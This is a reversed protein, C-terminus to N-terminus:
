EDDDWKMDDLEAAILDNFDHQSSDQKYDVGKQIARHFVKVVNTGDAALFIAIVELLNLIGVSCISEIQLKCNLSDKSDIHEM